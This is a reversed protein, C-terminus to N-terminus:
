EATGGLAPESARLAKMVRTKYAEDSPMGKGDPTKDGEVHTIVGGHEWPASFVYNTEPVCMLVGAKTNATAVCAVVATCAGLSGHSFRDSCLIRSRGQELLLAWGSRLGLGLGLWTM